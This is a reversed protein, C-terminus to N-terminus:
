QSKQLEEEVFQKLRESDEDEMSSFQVAFGIETAQEVVVAWPFIQSGDPFTIELRVMERTEVQGGSLVFCGRVSLSTISAERRMLASQWRATLKVKVRPSRRREPSM